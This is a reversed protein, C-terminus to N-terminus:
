KQTKKDFHYVAEYARNDNNDHGKIAFEITQKGIPQYAMAELGILVM